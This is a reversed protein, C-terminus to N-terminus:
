KKKANQHEQNKLANTLLSAIMDRYTYGAYRYSTATSATPSLSCDPSLEILCFEGHSNIRGDIRMVEVKGLNWYLEILQNKLNSSIKNTAREKSKMANAVKKYEYGYVGSTIYSQNGFNTQVGEFIEVEGLVGSICVCIEYGMAYEEALLTDYLPLLVRALDVADQYCYVFNKNSIGISGGEYNPKLVLPYQMPALAPIDAETRLLVDKAGQIGHLRCFEKALKKDQCIVHVYADAGVYCLNNAECISPVLAKRNRSNQGSWVSLIVDDRHESIHAVFEDPSGYHATKRCLSNLSDMIRQYTEHSTMELCPNDISIESNSAALDAIFVVGINKLADYDIM